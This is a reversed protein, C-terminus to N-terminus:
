GYRQRNVPTRMAYPLAVAWEGGLSLARARSLGNVVQETHNLTCPQANPTCPTGDSGSHAGGRGSDFSYPFYLVTLTLNQGQSEPSLGEFINLHERNSRFRDPAPHLSRVAAPDQVEEEEDKSENCTRSPGQAKLQVVLMRDM